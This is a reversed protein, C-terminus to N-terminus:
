MWADQYSITMQAGAAEGQLIIQSTGPALVWWSSWLDAPIQSGDLYAVKNLLDLLLTDTSSM